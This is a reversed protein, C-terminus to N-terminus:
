RNFQIFKKARISCIITSFLWAAATVGCQLWSSPPMKQKFGASILCILLMLLTLAVLGCALNSSRKTFRGARKYGSPLDEGPLIKLLHGKKDRAFKGSRFLEDLSRAVFFDYCKEDDLELERKLSKVSIEGGVGRSGATVERDLDPIYNVPLIHRFFEKTGWGYDEEAGPMDFCWLGRRNLTCFIITPDKSLHCSSDFGGDTGITYFLHTYVVQAPDGKRFYEVYNYIHQLDSNSLEKGDERSLFASVLRYHNRCSLVIRYIRVEGRIGTIDNKVLYEEFDGPRNQTKRFSAACKVRANIGWSQLPPLKIGPFPYDGSFNSQQDNFFKEQLARAASDDSKKGTNQPAPAPTTEVPASQSKVEGLSPADAEGAPATQEEDQPRVVAFANYAYREIYEYPIKVDFAGKWSNAARFYGRSAMGPTDCWGYITMAHLGGPPVLSNDPLTLWETGRFPDEFLLCGVSIPSPANGGAGCLVSKYEDVNRPPDTKLPAFEVDDFTEVPISEFLEESIQAEDGADVKNYPWHDYLCVGQEKIVRFIERMETGSQERMEESLHTAAYLYQPSYQKQNGCLYELIAVASFAACTGRSGQDRRVQFHPLVFKGPYRGQYSM